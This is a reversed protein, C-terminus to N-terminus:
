SANPHDSREAWEIPRMHAEPLTAESLEAQDIARLMARTEQDQAEVEAALARICPDEHQQFREFARHRDCAWCYHGQGRHKKRLAM